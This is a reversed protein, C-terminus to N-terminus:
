RNLCVPFQKIWQLRHCEWLGILIAEAADHMMTKSPPIDSWRIIRQAKEMAHQKAEVGNRMQRYYLMDNRWQAAHISHVKIGRKKAENLWFQTLPGGGECILHTVQPLNRLITYIARRLRAPSGFNHSRYWVLKGLDNYLALGSRVGVDIALLHVQKPNNM